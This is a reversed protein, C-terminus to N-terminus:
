SRKAARLEGGVGRLYADTRQFIDGTPLSYDGYASHQIRPYEGLIRADTRGDIESGTPVRHFSDVM